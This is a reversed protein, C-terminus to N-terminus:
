SDHNSQYNHNLALTIPLGGRQTWGVIPIGTLKNGNGTNTGGYSGEWGYTPGSAATLSPQHTLRGVIQQMEQLSLMRVGSRPKLSQQALCAVPTALVMTWAFLTAGALACPRLWRPHPSLRREPPAAANCKSLSREM